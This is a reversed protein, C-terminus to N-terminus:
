LRTLHICFMSRPSSVTADTEEVARRKPEGEAQPEEEGGNDGDRKRKGETPSMSGETQQQPESRAGMGRSATFETREIVPMPKGLGPREIKPPPEFNQFAKKPKMLCADEDALGERRARAREAAPTSGEAEDEERVRKVAEIKEQLGILRYFGALQAAAGISHAFHLCHTLELVRAGKDAKCASQILKILAKDLEVERKDLSATTVTDGGLADRALDIYLRERAISANTHIICIPFTLLACREELSGNVPDKNRFPMRM